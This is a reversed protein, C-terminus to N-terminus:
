KINIFFWIYGILYIISCIIGLLFLINYIYKLEKNKFPINLIVKDHTIAHLLIEILFISFICVFIEIYLNFVLESLHFISKFLFRLIINKTFSLEFNIMLFSISLILCSIANGLLSLINLSIYKTLKM